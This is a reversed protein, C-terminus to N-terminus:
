ILVKWRWYDVETQCSNIMELAYYHDDIMKLCSVFKGRNGVDNAKYLELVVPHFPYDRIFKTRKNKREAKQKEIKKAQETASYKFHIM